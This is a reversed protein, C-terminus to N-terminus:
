KNATVIVSSMRYILVTRQGVLKIKCIYDNSCTKTMLNGVDPPYICLIIKYSVTFCSLIILAIKGSCDQITYFQIIYSVNTSSFRFFLYFIINVHYYRRTRM